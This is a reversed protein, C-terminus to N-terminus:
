LLLQDRLETNGVKDVSFFFLKRAGEVNLTSKSESYEVYQGDDSFFSKSLGSVSEEVSLIFKLGKGFFTNQDDIYEPAGKFFIKTKPAKGDAYIPFLIERKPDHYTQKEKDIAWKSRLYNVGETDLFMPNADQPNEPTELNIGKGDKTTSISLYIPLNRQVYIKSGEQFMIAEFVPKEPENQAYCNYIFSFYLIVWFVKNKKM